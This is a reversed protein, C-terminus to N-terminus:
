FTHLKSLSNLFRKVQQQNALEFRYDYNNKSGNKQSMRAPSSNIIQNFSSNSSFITMLGRRYSFYYFTNSDIEIYIITEDGLPYPTIQILGPVMLDVKKGMVNSLPLLLDSVFSNTPKHWSLELQPFYLTHRLLQPLFRKGKRKKRNFKRVLRNGLLEKLNNQHIESSQDINNEIGSIKLEKRMIKSAKKHFLFDFSLDLTGTFIEENFQANIYGFSGMNLLGSNAGLNMYGEAYLSCKEPNYIAINGVLSRDEIKEMSSIVYESDFKDYVVFGKVSLIESDNMRKANSLFVPYACTPEHSMMIGAHWQQRPTLRQETNLDVFVNEPDVQDFFPIWAPNLNDCELAVNIDGNFTLFDNLSSLIVKGQFKFYPDLHFQDNETM